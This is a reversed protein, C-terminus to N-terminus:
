SQRHTHRHLGLPDLGAQRLLRYTLPLPLGVVNSYNGEIGEIFLACLGQIAYGGAKDMPEGSAVYWAIQAEDLPAFRVATSEVAVECSTPGSRLAVSTLVHHTRGSLQRLMHAADAADAPKGMLQDDLVVITDAALVWTGDSPEDEAKDSAKVGVAAASKEIALRRVYDTPAEGPLPSEDIDVPRVDFALGLDALMQRRRPSGSALILRM